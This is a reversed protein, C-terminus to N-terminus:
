KNMQQWGYGRNLEENRQREEEEIRVTGRQVLDPKESVSLVEGPRQLWKYGCLECYYGYQYWPDKSKSVHDAIAKPIFIFLGIGAFVMGLITALILQGFLSGKDYKGIRYGGCHPCQM